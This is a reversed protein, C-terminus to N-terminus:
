RCEFQLSPVCLHLAFGAVHITYEHPRGAITIGAMHIVIFVAASEARVATGTVVREVPLVGIEIVVAAVERQCTRMHVQRTFLAMVKTLKGPHGGGTRTTMAIRHEMCSHEPEIARGAMGRVIPIRDISPRVRPNRILSPPTHIM